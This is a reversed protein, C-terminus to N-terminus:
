ALGYRLHAPDPLEASNRSKALFLLAALDGLADGLEAASLDGFPSTLGWPGPIGHLYPHGHNPVATRGFLTVKGDHSEVFDCRHGCFPSPLNRMSALSDPVSRERLHSLYKINWALRHLMVRAARQFGHRFYQFHAASPDRTGYTAVLRPLEAIIRRCEEHFGDVVSAGAEFQPDDRTSRPLQVGSVQWYAEALSEYNASLMAVRFCSPPAINRALDVSHVLGHDALRLTVSLNGTLSRCGERAESLASALKRPGGRAVDLEFYVRGALLSPLPCPEDVLRIPVILTSGERERTIAHQLEERVWESENASTSVFYLYVDCDSVAQLLEPLLKAGLELQQEDIWAPIGEELLAELVRYAVPRNTWSYSLFVM